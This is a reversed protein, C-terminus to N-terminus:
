FPLQHPRSFGPTIDAWAWSQSSFGSRIRIPSRQLSHGKHDASAETHRKFHYYVRPHIVQIKKRDQEGHSELRGDPRDSRRLVRCPATKRPKCPASLPQAGTRARETGEKIGRCMRGRDRRAPESPPSGQATHAAPTESPALSPATCHTGGTRGTDGRQRWPYEMGRKQPDDRHWTTRRSSGADREQSAAKHDM